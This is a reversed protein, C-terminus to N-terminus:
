FPPCRGTLIPRSCGAGPVEEIEISPDYRRWMVVGDGKLADSPAIKSRRWALLEQAVKYMAAAFGVKETTVMIGTCSWHTPYSSWPKFTCAENYGASAITLAEGEGDIGFEFCLIRKQQHRDQFTATGQDAAVDTIQVAVHAIGPLDSAVPFRDMLEDM